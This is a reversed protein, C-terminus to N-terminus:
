KGSLLEDIMKQMRWPKLGRHLKIKSKWHGFSGESTNNTKPINLGIYDQYTFIYKFNNRLSIIATRISKHIYEGNSNRKQIFELNDLILEELLQTFEKKNTYKLKLILSKLDKGCITKPNRTIHKFTNAVIHYQCLQIAIFPYKKELFNILGTKNDVTFSVIDYYQKIHLICAYYDQLTETKVYKSTFILM